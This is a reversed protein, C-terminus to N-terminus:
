LIETIIRYGGGREVADPYMFTSMFLAPAFPTLRITVPKATLPNIKENCHKLFIM